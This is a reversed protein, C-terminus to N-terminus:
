AHIKEGSSFGLECVKFLNKTFLCEATVLNAGSILKNSKLMSFPVKKHFSNYNDFTFAHILNSKNAISLLEDRSLVGQRELLLSAKDV